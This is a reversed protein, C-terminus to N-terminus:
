PLDALAEGPVAQGDVLVHHEWLHWGRPRCVMIARKGQPLRRPLPPLTPHPPALRTPPFCPFNSLLLHPLEWCYLLWDWSLRLQRSGTHSCGLPVGLM